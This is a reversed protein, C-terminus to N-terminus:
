RKNKRYKQILDYAAQIDQTKKKAVELMEKPLGKSILKDPHHESMRKRYARKVEQDSSSASTGLVQYAEQLMHHSPQQSHHHQYQYRSQQQYFSRQAQVRRNLMELTFRSVNLLQCIENLIHQEAASIAGDAYAAQLQIEIFVHILNASTVSHKFDLLVEHFNILGSKGKNFLEIAQRRQSPSLRMNDMLQTAQRIEQENIRGDAKALKGMAVFTAQFFANQARAQQEPSIHTQFRQTSLRQSLFLGAIGGLVAGFPGFFILGLLALTVIPMWM